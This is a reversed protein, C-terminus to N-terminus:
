ANEGSVVKPTSYSITSLMASISNKISETAASNQLVAVTANGDKLVYFYIENNNKNGVDIAGVKCENDILVEAEIDDKEGLRAFQKAVFLGEKHEKFFYTPHNYASSIQIKAGDIDHKGIIISDFETFKWKQDSSLTFSKFEIM